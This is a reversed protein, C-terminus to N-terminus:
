FIELFSPKEFYNDLSIAPLRMFIRFFHSKATTKNLLNGVFLSKNNSDPEVRGRFSDDQSRFENDAFGTTLSASSFWIDLCSIM